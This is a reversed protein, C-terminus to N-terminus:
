IIQRHNSSSKVIIQRHNSSSKVIIQRHNSSSKVIIQRHNSSSKVIIQRHNSSTDLKCQFWDGYFFCQMPQYAIKVNCQSANPSCIEVKPAGFKCGIRPACENSQM